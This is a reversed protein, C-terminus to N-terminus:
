CIYIKPITKDLGNINEQLFFIKPVKTDAGIGLRTACALMHTQGLRVLCLVLGYTQM